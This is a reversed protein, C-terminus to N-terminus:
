ALSPNAYLSSQDAEHRDQVVRVGYLHLEDEAHFCDLDVLMQLLDASSVVDFTRLVQVGAQIKLTKVQVPVMTTHMLQNVEGWNVCCTKFLKRRLSRKSSTESDAEGWVLM